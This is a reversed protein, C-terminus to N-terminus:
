DELPPPPPLPAWHSIYQELRQPTAYWRGDEWHAIMYMFGGDRAFALYRGRKPPPQNKCEIWGPEGPSSVIDPLREGSGRRGAVLELVQDWQKPDSIRGTGRCIGCPVRTEDQAMLADGTGGCVPCRGPEFRRSM